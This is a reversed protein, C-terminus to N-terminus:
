NPIKKPTTCSVLTEWNSATKAGQETKTCELQGPTTAKFYCGSIFVIYKKRKNNHTNTDIKEATCEKIKEQV